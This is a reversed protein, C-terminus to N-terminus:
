MCTDLHSHISDRCLETKMCPLVSLFFAVEISIRNCPGFYMCLDLSNKGWIYVIPIRLVKLTLIVTTLEVLLVLVPMLLFTIILLIHSAENGPEGSRSIYM